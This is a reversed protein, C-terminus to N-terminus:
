HVYDLPRNFGGKRNMYQRYKRKMVVHVGGVQNGKVKKNKSTDFNSFGMVKIMELEDQSKGDIDSQSVPHQSSLVLSQQAKEKRKKERERDWVAAPASFSSSPMEEVTSARSPSEERHPRRRRERSRSRRRHHRERSRRRTRERSRSRSRAM